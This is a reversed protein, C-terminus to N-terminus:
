GLVAPPLDTFTRVGAIKEGELTFLDVAEFEIKSGEKVAGKMRLLAAVTNNEAIIGTVEHVGSGVVRTEKYYQILKSAGVIPARGIITQYVVKESLIPFLEDYRGSDVLELYTKVTEKMKELSPLRTAIRISLLNNRAKM